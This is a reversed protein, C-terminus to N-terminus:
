STRESGIAVARNWEWPRCPFSSSAVLERRRVEHLGAWVLCTRVDEEHSM